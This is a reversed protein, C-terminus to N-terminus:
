DHNQVDMLSDVQEHSATEDLTQRNLRLADSIPHDIDIGGSAGQSQESSTPEDDAFRLTENEHLSNGTTWGSTDRQKKPSNQDSLPSITKHKQGPMRDSLSDDNQALCQFRNSLPTQQVAQYRPMNFRPGTYSKPIAGVDPADCHGRNNMPNMNMHTQYGPPPPRVSYDSKNMPNLNMQNPYGQPAPRAHPPPAPQFQTSSQYSEQIQTPRRYPRQDASPLKYEPDIEPIYLKSNVYLKDRVLNVKANPNKTKIRYMVPYLVKRREEIERPFQERVKMKSDPNSNLDMGAQRVLERDTYHEFKVVIPRPNRNYRKRAGLRHVRDFRIQSQRHEEIKLEKVLFERLVSETTPAPQEIENNEINDSTTKNEQVEAEEIGFFLLNEQMSRSQLELFDEKLNAYNFKTEQLQSNLYNNEQQLKQIKQQNSDTSKTINDFSDSNNQCSVEVELLRRNFEINDTKIRSVDARVLTVDSEISGLKTLSNEIVTLRTSFNENMQMIMGAIDGNHTTNIDHSRYGSNIGNVIGYQSYSQNRYMSQGNMAQQFDPVGLAPNIYSGNSMSPMGFDRSQNSYCNQQNGNDINQNNIHQIQQMNQMQHQPHPQQIQNNGIQTVKQSTSQSVRGKTGGQDSEKTKNSRSKPKDSVDSPM